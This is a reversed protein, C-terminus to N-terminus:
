NDLLALLFPVAGLVGDKVDSEPLHTVGVAAAMADALSVFDGWLPIPATQGDLLTLVADVTCGDRILELPWDEVARPIRLEHSRWVLRVDPEGLAELRAADSTM